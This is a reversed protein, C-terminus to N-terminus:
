VLGFMQQDARILIAGRCMGGADEPPQRMVDVRAGGGHIKLQCPSPQMAPSSPLAPSCAQLLLALEAAFTWTSKLLFDFKKM